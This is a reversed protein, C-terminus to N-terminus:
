ENANAPPNLSQLAPLAAAELAQRHANARGLVRIGVLVCLLHESHRQACLTRPTEFRTQSLEINRKFFSRIESFYGSILDSLESDTPAVELSANVLLCGRRSSDSVTKEIVDAFFAEIAAVGNAGGEIRRIRERMSSNCYQELAAAFLTRKDGYANYLSAGGIGMRDSLERISTAEYGRAWFCRAAAELVKEEDFSRPRGM